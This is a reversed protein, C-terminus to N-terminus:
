QGYNLYKYFYPRIEKYEELIEQEISALFVGSAIESLKESRSVEPSINSVHLNKGSIVYFLLSSLSYMEEKRNYQFKKFEQNKRNLINRAINPSLYHIFGGPYNECQHEEYSYFEFDLLFIQGDSMLIHKGQIDGHLFKNNHFLKYVEFISSVLGVISTPEKRLLNSYEYLNHGDIWETISWRLGNFDGEEILRPIMVGDIHNSNFISHFEIERELGLVRESDLDTLTGSNRCIKLAYAHKDNALKFVGGRRSPYHDVLDLNDKKVFPISIIDEYSINSILETNWLLKRYIM